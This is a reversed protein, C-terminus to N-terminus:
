SGLTFYSSCESLFWVSFSIVPEGFSADFEECCLAKPTIQERLKLYESLLIGVHRWKGQVVAQIIDRHLGLSQYMGM